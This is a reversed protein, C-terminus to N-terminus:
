PLRQMQVSAEPHYTTVHVLAIDIISKLEVPIRDDEKYAHGGAGSQVHAGGNLRM